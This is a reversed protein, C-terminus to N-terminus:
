RTSQGIARKLEAHFTAVSRQRADTENLSKRLSKFATDASSLRSAFEAVNSATRLVPWKKMFEPAQSDDTVYTSLPYNKETAVGIEWPVWWSWITQKSVVAVLGDCEHMKLRIYEALEDGSKGINNDVIDLYYDHGYKLLVSAVRLAELEDEQKHSIFIKM